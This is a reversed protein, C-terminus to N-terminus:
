SEDLVDQVLKDVKVAYAEAALAFYFDARAEDNVRECERGHTDEGADCTPSQVCRYTYEEVM